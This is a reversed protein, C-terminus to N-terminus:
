ARSDSSSEGRTDPVPEAETAGTTEAAEAADAPRRLEAAFDKSRAAVRQGVM